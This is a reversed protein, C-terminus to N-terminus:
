IHILSLHVVATWEVHFGAHESTRGRKLYGRQKHQSNSFLEVISSRINFRNVMDSTLGLAAWILKSDFETAATYMYM